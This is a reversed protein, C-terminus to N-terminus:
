LKGRRKLDDVVDEFLLDPESARSDFAALDEADEELSLRVADNVLASLSRDSEEARRQLQRHVEPEFYITARRM